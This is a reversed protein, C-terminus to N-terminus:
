FLSWERTMTIEGVDDRITMTDATINTIKYSASMDEFEPEFSGYVGDDM